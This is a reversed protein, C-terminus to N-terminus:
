AIWKEFVLLCHPLIAPPKPGTLSAKFLVRIGSEMRVKENHWIIRLDISLFGWPLDELM